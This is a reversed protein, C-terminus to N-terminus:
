SGPVVGCIARRVGREVSDRSDVGVGSGSRSRVAGIRDVYRRGRVIVGSADLCDGVVEADHCLVDVVSSPSWGVRDSVVFLTRRVPCSFWVCRFGAVRVYILNGFNDVVRGALDSFADRDVRFVVGPRTLTRSVDVGAFECVLANAGVADGPVRTKTRDDM